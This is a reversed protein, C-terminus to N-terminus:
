LGFYDQEVPCLVPYEGLGFTGATTSVPLGAGDIAVTLSGKDDFTVKARASGTEPDIMAGWEEPDMEGRNWEAYTRVTAMWRPTGDDLSVVGISKSMSDEQYLVGPDMDHQGIRWRLVLEEPPKGTLERTEISIDDVNEDAYGVGPHSVSFLSSTSWRDGQAVALLFSEEMREYDHIAFVAAAYSSGKAAATRSSAAGGFSCVAPDAGEGPHRALFDECPSKPSRTPEADFACRAHGPAGKTRLSKLRDEVVANGPRAHLSQAYLEAALDAEGRAEHVRGLNYLVAGKTKTATTHRLALELERAARDLQGDLFYAWGLEGLVKGNMPGRAKAERLAAIGAAYDKSKVAARGKSLFAALEDKAAMVEDKAPVARAKPTQAVPGGGTTAVGPPEKPTSHAPQNECGALLVLVLVCREVSVPGSNRM